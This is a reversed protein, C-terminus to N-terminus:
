RAIGARWLPEISLFWHSIGRMRLQDALRQGPGGSPSARTTRSMLYELALNASAQNAVLVEIPGKDIANFRTWPTLGLKLNKRAM